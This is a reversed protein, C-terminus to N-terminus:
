NLIRKNNSEVEVLDVEDDEDIDYDIYDQVIQEVIEDKTADDLDDADLMNDEGVKVPIFSVSDDGVFSLNYVYSKGEYEFSGGFVKELVVGFCHNTIM